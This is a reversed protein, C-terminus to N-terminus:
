RSLGVMDLFTRFVNTRTIFNYGVDIPTKGDGITKDYVTKIVSCQHSDSPHLPLSPFIREHKLISELNIYKWQEKYHLYNSISGIEDSTEPLNDLNSELNLILWSDPDNNRNFFGGIDDLCCTEVKIDLKFHDKVRKSGYHSETNVELKDYSSRIMVDNDHLLAVLTLNLSRSTLSLNGNRVNLSPISFRSCYSYVEMLLTSLLSWKRWLLRDQTDRLNKVQDTWFRSFHDNCFLKDSISLDFLTVLLFNKQTSLRPDM